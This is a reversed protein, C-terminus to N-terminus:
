SVLTLAPPIYSEPLTIAGESYPLISPPENGPTPYYMRLIIQLTTSVPANPYISNFYATSPTPIWNSAGVGNPLSPGFWLTLSGDANLALQGDVLQQSGLQSVPQVVGYTLPSAGAPSQLSVIAGPGGSNQIPVNQSSLTQIWQQSIEFSYTTGQTTPDVGSTPTSAV